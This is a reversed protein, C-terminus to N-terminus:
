CVNIFLVSTDLKGVMLEDAFLGTMRVVTVGEVVSLGLIHLHSSGLWSSEGQFSTIILHFSSRRGSLLGHPGRRHFLISTCSFFCLLEKGRGRRKKEGGVRGRERSRGGEEGARGSTLGYIIKLKPETEM